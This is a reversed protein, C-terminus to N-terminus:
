NTITSITSGILQSFGLAGLLIFAGILSYMIAKKANGLEEVNGQAKIFLFGSIMFAIVVFPMLVKVVANIVASAFEDFTKAKIPNVLTTKIETAPANTNTGGSPANTNTGGSGCYKNSYFQQNEAGLTNWNSLIEIPMGECASTAALVFMTPFFMMGLVVAGLIKKMRNSAKQFTPETYDITDKTKNKM